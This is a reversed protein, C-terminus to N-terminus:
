AHIHICDDSFKALCGPCSLFHTVITTQERHPRAYFPRFPGLVKPRKIVFSPELAKDTAIARGVQKVESKSCISCCFIFGNPSDYKIACAMMAAFSNPAIGIRASLQDDIPGALSEIALDEIGEEDDRRGFTGADEIEKYSNLTGLRICNCKGFPNHHPEGFKIIPM